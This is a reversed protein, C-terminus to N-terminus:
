EGPERTKPEMVKTNKEIALVITREEVGDGSSAVIPIVQRRDPLSVRAVFTGDDRLKIPEGSMTVYANPHTVGYVVMEADITFQLDRDRNLAGEAGNGFRTMMPSGMPRRLREEFLTQLEGTAHQDDYGGSLAFVKEPNEILDAWNNEMM